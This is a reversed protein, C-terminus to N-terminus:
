IIKYKALFENIIENLKDLLNKDDETLEYRWPIKEMAEIANTISYHWNSYGGKIFSAIGYVSELSAREEVLMRRTEDNALVEPLRDRVEQAKFARQDIEPIGDTIWRYFLKLHNKNKYEATEEDWELWERIPAKVYAQEFHSFLDPSANKGYDSDYEMQKLGKYARLMQGAKKRGV